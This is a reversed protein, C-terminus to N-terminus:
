YRNKLWALIKLELKQMKIRARERVHDFGLLHLLGHVLLRDIGVKHTSIYSPCLYVEGIMRETECIQPFDVPSEFSLIDTPKDLGRFIRNLKRMKRRDILSVEVRLHPSKFYSTLIVQALEQLREAENTM